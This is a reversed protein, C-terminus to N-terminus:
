PISSSRGAKRIPSYKQGTASFVSRTHIFGYWIYCTETACDVVYISAVDDYLMQSYPELANQLGLTIRSDSKLSTQDTVLTSKHPHGFM